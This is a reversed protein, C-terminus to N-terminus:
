STGLPGRRGEVKVKDGLLRLDGSALGVLFLSRSASNPLLEGASCSLEPGKV